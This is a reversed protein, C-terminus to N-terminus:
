NHTSEDLVPDCVELTRRREFKRGDALGPRRVDQQSIWNHTSIGAAYSFDRLTKRLDGHRGKNFVTLVDLGPRSAPDTQKDVHVGTHVSCADSFVPDIFDDFERPGDAGGTQDKAPEVIVVSM